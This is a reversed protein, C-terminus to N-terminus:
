AVDIKWLGHINCFERIILSGDVLPFDAEPKEGPSLYVRYTRKEAILEIWEIFHADEMPHPISGIAIHIGQATKTVVPVHKEQGMDSTKEPVLLPKHCVEPLENGPRLIEVLNNCVLCQYIQHLKNM